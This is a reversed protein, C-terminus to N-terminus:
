GEKKIALEACSEWLDENLHGRRHLDLKMLFHSEGARHRVVFPQGFDALPIPYDNPLVKFPVYISNLGFRDFLVLNSAEIERTSTLASPYRKAIDHSSM